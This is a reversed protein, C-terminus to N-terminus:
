HPDLSLNTREWTNEWHLYFLSNWKHNKNLVCLYTNKSYSSEAKKQGMGSNLCVHTDVGDNQVSYQLLDHMQWTKIQAGIVETLLSLFFSIDFFCM